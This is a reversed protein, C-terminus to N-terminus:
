LGICGVEVHEATPQNSRLWERVADRTEEAGASISCSAMGLYLVPAQPNDRRLGATLAEYEPPMATQKVGNHTLPALLLSTFIKRDHSM